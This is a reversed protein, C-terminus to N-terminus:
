AGEVGGRMIEQWQVTGIRIGRGDRRDTISRFYRDRHHPAGEGKNSRSLKTTSRGRKKLFSYMVRGWLDHLLKALKVEAGRRVGKRGAGKLSGCGGKGRGRNM